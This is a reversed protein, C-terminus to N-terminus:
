NCPNRNYRPKESERKHERFKSVVMQIKTSGSKTTKRMGALSRLNQRWFDDTTAWILADQLEHWDFCDIRIAKELELAGNRILAETVKPATNGLNICVENQFRRTFSIYKEDPMKQAPEVFTSANILEKDEKLEKVEKINKYTAREHGESPGRMARVQGQSPGNIAEEHGNQHGKNIFNDQYSDWNIITILSFRKTAKIAVIGCKELYKLAVRICKESQNLDEAAQKRGFVLQGQNLTIPENRAEDKTTKHAAKLLLYIFLQLVNRNKLIRSKLLSRYLKIWGSDMDSLM